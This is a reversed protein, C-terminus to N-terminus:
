GKLIENGNLSINCHLCKFFITCLLHKVVVSTYAVKAFGSYWRFQWRKACFPKKLAYVKSKTFHLHM